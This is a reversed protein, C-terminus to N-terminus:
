IQSRGIIVSQNIQRMILKYNTNTNNTGEVMRESTTKVQRKDINGVMSCGVDIMPYLPLQQLMLCNAGQNSGVLNSVIFKSQDHISYLIAICLSYRDM